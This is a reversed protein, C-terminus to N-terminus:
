RALVVGVGVCVVVVVVVVCGRRAISKKGVKVGVCVVSVVVVVRGKRAISNKGVGVCCVGGGVSM